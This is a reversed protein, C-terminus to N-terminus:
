DIKGVGKGTAAWYIGGFLHQLFLPDQYTAPLHGLATYFSRGGDIEQYWAIPHFDGMGSVRVDGWQAAPKYTSEDVTLIYKLNESLPESFHYYEDTWLFSSPLLSSGPFDAQVVNIKATQIAPHIVFMRGVLQTYWPWQYETDSASHVGVFGKGSQIFLKMAKQQEDNLVDGTTNLFIIADFRDLNKSNFQKADEHWEYDFHHKEALVKVANVGELISQHHWGATKTFLLVKFQKASLVPSSLLAMCFGIVLLFHRSWIM